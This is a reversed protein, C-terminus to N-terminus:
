DARSSETAYVESFIARAHALDEEAGAANAIADALASQAWERDEARSWAASEEVAGRMLVVHQQARSVFEELEAIMAEM